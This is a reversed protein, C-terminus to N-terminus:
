SKNQAKESATTLDLDRPYFLEYIDALVGPFGLM